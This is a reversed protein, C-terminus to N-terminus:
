NSQLAMKGCDGHRNLAIVVNLKTMPVNIEINKIISSGQGILNYSDDYTVTRNKKGSVMELLLVGFSFVDSKISFLGDIAYEPAMYGSFAVM